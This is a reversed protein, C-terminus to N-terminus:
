DQRNYFSSSSILDHMSVCYAASFDSHQTGLGFTRISFSSTDCDYTADWGMGVDFVMDVMMMM